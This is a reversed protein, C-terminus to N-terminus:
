PSLGPKVGMCFLYSIIFYIKIKGVWHNGPAMKESTFRGSRLASGGGDLASTLM